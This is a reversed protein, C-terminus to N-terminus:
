ESPASASPTEAVPSIPEPPKEVVPPVPPPADKTKFLAALQAFSYVPEKGAKQDDSM